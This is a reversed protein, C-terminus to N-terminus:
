EEKKKTDVIMQEGKPVVVLGTGFRYTPYREKISLYPIMYPAEQKFYKMVDEYVFDCKTYLM